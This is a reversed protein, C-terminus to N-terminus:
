APLQMAVTLDVSETLTIVTLVVAKSADGMYSEDTFTSTPSTTSERFLELKTFSSIASLSLGSSVAASTITEPPLAKPEDSFKLIM